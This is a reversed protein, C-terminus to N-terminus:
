RTLVLRGETISAMCSATTICTGSFPRTLVGTSMRWTLEGTLTGDLGISGVATYGRVSDDPGAGFNGSGDVVFTHLHYTGGSATFTMNSWRGAYPHGPTGDDDGGPMMPDTCAALAALVLPLALRVRPARISTM